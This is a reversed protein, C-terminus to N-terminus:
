RRFARYQLVKSEVLLQSGKTLKIRGQGTMKPVGQITAGQKRGIISKRKNTKKYTATKWGTNSQELVKTSNNGEGDGKLNDEDLNVTQSISNTEM